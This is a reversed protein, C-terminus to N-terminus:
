RTVLSLAAVPVGVLEILPELVEDEALADVVDLELLVLIAKLRDNITRM